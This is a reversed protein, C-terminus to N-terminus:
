QRCEVRKKDVIEVVGDFSKVFLDVGDALLKDTAAEVDIGAAALADMHAHAGPVDADVTRAVM